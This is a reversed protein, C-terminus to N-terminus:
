AGVLRFEMLCGAVVTRVHMAVGAVKVVPVTLDKPVEALSRVVALAAMGAVAVVVAETLLPTVLVARARLRSRNAPHQSRRIQERGALEPATCGVM